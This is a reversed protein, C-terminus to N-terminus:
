FGYLDSKGSKLPVERYETYKEPPTPPRPVRSALNPRGAIASELFRPEERALIPRSINKDGHFAKDNTLPPQLIYNHSYAPEDTTAVSKKSASGGSRLSFMSLMSRRKSSRPSSATLSSVTPSPANAAVAALRASEAAADLYAQVAFSDPTNTRVRKHVSAPPSLKRRTIGAASGSRSETCTAGTSQDRKLAHHSPLTLTSPHSAPPMDDMRYTSRGRPLEQHMASRRREMQDYYEGSTTYASTKELPPNSENHRLYQYSAAPQQHQQQQHQQDARLKAQAMDYRAALLAAPPPGAGTYYDEEWDGHAKKRSCHLILLGVAILLIAIVAVAIGIIAGTSLGPESKDDDPNSTNDPDTIQVAQTAFVTGSLGIATGKEPTQRCGAELATIFNALFTQNHNERLCEICKSREAGMFSGDDDFCYDWTTNQTPALSDYTLATKLSKCAQNTSCSSVAADDSQKPTDFLCVDLAFRSNYIFWKADTEGWNGRTSTQLCEQCQKYKLGVKTSSFQDDFCAIESSNTNSDSASWNNDAPSGLCKHACPSGPAVQLADASLATSVLAILYSAWLSSIM